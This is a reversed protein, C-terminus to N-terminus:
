CHYPYILSMEIQRSWMRFRRKKVVKAMCAVMMGSGVGPGEVLISAVPELAVLAILVVDGVM